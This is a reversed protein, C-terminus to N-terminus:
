RRFLKMMGTVSRKIYLWPLLWKNQTNNSDLMYAPDPFLHERLYRCRAAPGPLSCFNSWHYKVPTSLDAPQVPDSGAHQQLQALVDAPLATNFREKCSLLGDLCVSSLKKRVALESFGSWQERKFVTAYLHIDYLWVLRDSKQDPSHGTRHLCAILMAHEPSVTRIETELGSVPRSSAALEDFPLANAFYFHNNIRWHLDLAWSFDAFCHRYCSFQHNIYSGSITIRRAYGRAKLISWAKGAMEYDPFLIDVDSYQRLHPRRYLNFSLPFGKFYLPSIRADQLSRHIGTIEQKWLLHLAISQETKGNLQRTFTAPYSELVKNESLRDFILATVGHRDAQQLIATITEGGGDPLAPTDGALVNQLWAIIQQEPVTM